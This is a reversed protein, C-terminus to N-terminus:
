YFGSRMLGAFNVAILGWILWPLLRLVAWRRRVWFAAVLACALLVIVEGAVWAILLGVGQANAPAGSLNYAFGLLAVWNTLLLLSGIAGGV